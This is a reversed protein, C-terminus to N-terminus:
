LPVASRCAAQKGALGIKSVPTIHPTCLRELKSCFSARTPQKGAARNCGRATVGEKERGGERGGVM